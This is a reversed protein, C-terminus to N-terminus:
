NNFIVVIASFMVLFSSTLANANSRFNIRLWSDVLAFNQDSWTISAAINERIAAISAVEGATLIAQHRSVLEDIKASHEATTLRRAFANLINTTGTLGQVRPQIQPWHEIIFELAAEMGEPSSNVVSVIITHKDQERVPSNDDIVENLYNQRLEENSTCGLASLLISQESSDTSAVYQQWLFEFNEEDGGRLGSCYVITQIDPNLRQSPNNRFNQLLESATNVCDQNGYRCNIDLIINRHYAAVHEEGSAATFGFQQYLPATLGLAYEQFIEYVAPSGSLVVDLYSWAANAAGWPIYDEERDLYLSLDLAHAYGLNVSPMTLTAPNM